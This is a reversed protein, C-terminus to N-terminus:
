QDSREHSVSAAHMEECRPCTEGPFIHCGEATADWGQEVAIDLIAKPIIVAPDLEDDKHIAVAPEGNMYGFFLQLRAGTARDEMNLSPRDAHELHAYQKRTM